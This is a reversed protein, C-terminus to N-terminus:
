PTKKNERLLRRYNLFLDAVGLFIITTLIIPLAFSVVILLYFFIPKMQHKEILFKSVAFGQILMLYIGSFQFFIFANTLWLPLILNQKSIFINCILVIVIQMGTWRPFDWESFVSIKPLEKKIFRLSIYQTVKYTLAAVIVTGMLIGVLVLGYIVEITAPIGKKQADLAEQSYFRLWFPNNMMEIAKLELAEPALSINLFKFSLYIAVLAGIFYCISSRFIVQGASNGLRVFLVFGLGPLVDLLVVQIGQYVGLIAVVLMMLGFVAFVTIRYGSREAILYLIAPQVFMAIGGLLPFFSGILSLLAMLGLLVGTQAINGSNTPKFNQQFEGM